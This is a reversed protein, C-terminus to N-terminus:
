RYAQTSNITTNGDHIDTNMATQKKTPENNLNHYIVCSAVFFLFYVVSKLQYTKM